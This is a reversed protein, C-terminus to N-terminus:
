LLNAGSDLWTKPKEAKKFWRISHGLHQEFNKILDEYSWVTVTELQNLYESLANYDETLMVPLGYEDRGCYHNQESLGYIDIRGGSYSVYEKHLYKNGNMISTKWEEKLVPINNDEYWRTAIPGMWNTSYTIM